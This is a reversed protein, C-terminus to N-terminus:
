SVPDDVAQELSQIRENGCCQVQASERTPFTQAKQLSKTYSREGGFRAVWEGTEVKQIVYVMDDRRVGIIAASASWLDRLLLNHSRLKV